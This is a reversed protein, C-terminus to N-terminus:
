GMYAQTRRTRRAPLFNIRVLFVAATEQVRALVARFKSGNYLGQHPRVCKAYVQKKIDPYLSLGHKSPTVEHHSQQSM